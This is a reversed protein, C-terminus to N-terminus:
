ISKQPDPIIVGQEAMEQRIAEVYETFQWTDMESTRVKIKIQKGKHEIIKYPAYLETFVEHMENVKYGLSKACIPLIHAWYWGNQNGEEDQKGTTRIKRHPRVIVDIKKGVFQGLWLSFKDPENFKIKNNEVIAQFIPTSM